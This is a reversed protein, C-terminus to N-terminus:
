KLSQIYTKYEKLQTKTLVHEFWHEQLKLYIGFESDIEKANNTKIYHQLRDENAQTWESKYYKKGKLTTSCDWVKGKVSESNDTEKSIYKVLYAELDKIKYVAHIDTTNPNIHQFKEKFEHMYSAKSLLYNWKNQIDQYHIFVNTTIHYHLQGKNKKLKGHFDKSKQLEAKWIYHKVGRTKQLWQLFPKLCKTYAEKADIRKSQVPITLTIFNVKFTQQKNNVPNLIKKSPSLQLLLNVATRIRKQTHHTVTGSYSKKSHLREKMQQRAFESLYPKSDPKKYLFTSSNRVQLTPILFHYSGDYHKVPETNYIPM